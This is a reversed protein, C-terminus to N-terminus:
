RMRRHARLLRRRLREPLRILKTSENRAKDLSCETSNSWAALVSPESAGVLVVESGQQTARVDLEAAQVLSALERAAAESTFGIRWALAAADEGGEPAFVAFADGTWARAAEYAEEGDLGLRTYFAILGAGGFSDFGLSEYRAPADPRNCRLQAPLQRRAGYDMWGVLTRPGSRYAELLGDLGTTLYAESLPLGGVPYPLALLALNFPAESEAVEDLIGYLFPDFVRHALRLDFEYGNARAVVVEALVSAEGELLSRIAMAGDTSDAMDFTRDLGQQQDQLAHVYEHVLTNTGEDRNVIWEKIITIRRDEPDYYAAVGELESETMEEEFSSGQPLFSVLQLAREMVLDEAAPPESDLSRQEAEYVAQTIIRSEPQRAEPQGRVEATVRFISARCRADVINCPLDALVSSLPRPPGGDGEDCAGLSAGLLALVFLRKLSM